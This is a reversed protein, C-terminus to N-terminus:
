LTERASKEVPNRNGKKGNGNKRMTQYICWELKEVGFTM